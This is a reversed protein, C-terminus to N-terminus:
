EDRDASVRADRRFESCLICPYETREKSEPSRRALVWALRRAYPHKMFIGRCFEVGQLM